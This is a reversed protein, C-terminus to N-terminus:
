EWNVEVDDTREYPKIDIDDYNKVAANKQLIGQWAIMVANDVLFQNEPVFLKANRERCMISCMEQLRKNCAVGGGLLVEKKGTHAMARESVEILVAFVNEQL